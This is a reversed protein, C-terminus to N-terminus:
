PTPGALHNGRVLQLIQREVAMGRQIHLEVSESHTECPSRSALPGADCPPSAVNDIPPAGDPTLSTSSSPTGFIPVCPVVPRRGANRGGGSPTASTFVSANLMSAAAPPAPPPVMSITVLPPVLASCPASESYLLVEASCAVGNKTFATPPVLATLTV